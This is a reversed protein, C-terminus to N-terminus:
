CLDQLLKGIFIFSPQVSRIVSQDVHSKCDSSGRIGCQSNYEHVYLVMGTQTEPHLSVIEVIKTVRNGGCKGLNKGLKMKMPQTIACNIIM